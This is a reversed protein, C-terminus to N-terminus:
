FAISMGGPAPRLASQGDDDSSLEIALLVLGIATAGGGIGFLVDAALGKARAGDAETGDITPAGQAESLAAAGLGTAVLLTAGGGIMFAIPLAPIGADAVPPPADLAKPL